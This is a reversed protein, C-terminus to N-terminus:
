NISKIIFSRIRKAKDDYVFGNNKFLNYFKFIIFNNLTNKNNHLGHFWFLYPINYKRLYFLSFITSIYKRDGLFIIADFDSDKLNSFLHKEM